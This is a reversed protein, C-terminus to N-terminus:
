HARGGSGDRPEAAGGAARHRAGVPLLAAHAGAAFAQAGRDRGAGARAAVLAAYQSHGQAFAHPGGIRRLRRCCLVARGRADPLEAVSPYTELIGNKGPRGHPTDIPLSRRAANLSPTMAMMMVMM